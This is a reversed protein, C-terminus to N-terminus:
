SFMTEGKNGDVYVLISIVDCILFRIENYKAL